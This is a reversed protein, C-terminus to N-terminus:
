VVCAHILGSIMEELSAAADAAKGLVEALCEMSHDLCAFFLAEKDAYYKYIVGVSVGSKKAISRISSRFLGKQGFEETATEM